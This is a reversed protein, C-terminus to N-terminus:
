ESRLRSARRARSGARATLELRTGGDTPTVVHLVEDGPPGIHRTVARRGETLEGVVHVEARFRDSPHRTVFCQM